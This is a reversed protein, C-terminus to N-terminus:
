VSKKFYLKHFPLPQTNMRAYLKFGVCRYLCHSGLQEPRDTTYLRITKLSVNFKKMLGLTKLLMKKGVGNGRFEERLGFYNLWLEEPRNQHYHYYGTIGVFEGGYKVMFFDQLNAREPKFSLMYEKEPIFVGDCIEYPFIERALGIAQNVNQRTVLIFRLKKGSM